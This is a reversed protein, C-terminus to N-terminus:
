IVTLSGSSGSTTASDSTFDIQKWDHTKFYDMIVPNFFLDISVYLVKSNNVRMIDLAQLIIEPQKMHKPEEYGSFLVVAPYKIDFLSKISSHEHFYVEVLEYVNHSVFTPQGHKLLWYLTATDVLKQAAGRKIHLFVRDSTDFIEAFKKREEETTSVLSKVLRPAYAYLQKFKTCFCAKKVGEEYVFGLDKCRNCIM